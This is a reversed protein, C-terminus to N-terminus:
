SVGLWLRLLRAFLLFLRNVYEYLQLLAELKALTDVPDRDVIFCGGTTVASRHKIL